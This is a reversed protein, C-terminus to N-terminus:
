IITHYKPSCRAQRQEQDADPGQTVASHKIWQLDGFLERSASQVRDASLFGYGIAITAGVVVVIALVIALEVLTTGKSNGDTSFLFGSKNM